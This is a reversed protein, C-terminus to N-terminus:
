LSINFIIKEINPFHKYFIKDIGDTKIPMEQMKKWGPYVKLLILDVIREKKWHTVKYKRILSEISLHIIEHIITKILNNNKYNYNIIMSNPLWYSGGVGYKTLYVIYEKRPNLNNLLLNDTIKKAKLNWEKQLQLGIKKYQSEKYEKIIAKKIGDKTPNKNESLDIDKPLILKYQNKKYWGIKEIASSVRKIEYDISYKYKIDIKM